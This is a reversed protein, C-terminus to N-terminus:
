CRSRCRCRRPAASTTASRRRCRARRRERRRVPRRLRRPPAGRRREVAREIPVVGRETPTTTAPSARLDRAGLPTPPSSTARGPARAGLARGSAAAARRRQPRRRARRRAAARRVRDRGEPGPDPRDGRAQQKPFADQLIRDARGSDGPGGTGDDTKVLGVGQGVFVAVLVFAVWLGLATKAHHASWRGARAAFTTKPQM